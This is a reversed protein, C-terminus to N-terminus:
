LYGAWRSATLSQSPSSFICPHSSPAAAGGLQMAWMPPWTELARLRLGGYGSFTKAQIAHM